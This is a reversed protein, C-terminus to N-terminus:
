QNDRLWESFSQIRGASHGESLKDELFEKVEEEEFDSVLTEPTIDKPLYSLSRLMNDTCFFTGDVTKPAGKLSTLKNHSCDFYGNVTEPAGKLSTLHNHSCDFNGKVIEPAGELSTLGMESVNINGNYTQGTLDGYKTDKFKM